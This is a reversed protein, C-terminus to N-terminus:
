DEKPQPPLTMWYSVNRDPVTITFGGSHTHWVDHDGNSGYYYGFLIERLPWEIMESYMSVVKFDSVFLVPDGIEPHRDKTSIWEAIYKNREGPIYETM